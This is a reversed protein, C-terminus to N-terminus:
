LVNAMPSKPRFAPVRQCTHNDHSIPCSFFNAITTWQFELWGTQMISQGGRQSVNRKHPRLSANILITDCKKCWRRGAWWFGTVLKCKKWWLQEVRGAWNMMASGNDQRPLQVCKKCGGLWWRVICYHILFPSNIRRFATNKFNMLLRGEGFFAFSILITM